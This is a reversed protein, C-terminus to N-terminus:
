KSKKEAAKDKAIKKCKDPCDLNESHTCTLLCANYFSSESIKDDYQEIGADIGKTVYPEDAVAIDIYGCFLLGIFAYKM